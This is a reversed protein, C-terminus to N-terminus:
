QLGKYQSMSVPSSLSGPRNRDAPHTQYGASLKSFDEPGTKTKNKQKKKTPPHYLSSFTAGAGMKSTRLAHQLGTRKMMMLKDNKMM